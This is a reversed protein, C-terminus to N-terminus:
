DRNLNKVVSKVMTRAWQTRKETDGIREGLMNDRDKPRM